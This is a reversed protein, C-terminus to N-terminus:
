HARTIGASSEIATIAEEMERKGEGPAELLIERLRKVTDSTGIKGLVKAANQRLRRDQSQIASLLLDINEKSDIQQLAWVAGRQVEKDEDKMAKILPKLAEESKIERLAWTVGLRMGPDKDSLYTCLLGLMNRSRIKGLAQAANWRVEKERLAKILSEAAEISGIKGLAQAANCRVDTDERKNGLIKVLLRIPRRSGIEGLISVVCRRLDVDETDDLIRLLPTIAMESKSRGIVMGVRWRVEKDYLATILFDITEQSKIEYPEGKLMASLKEAKYREM